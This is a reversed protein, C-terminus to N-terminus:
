WMMGLLNMTIRLNNSFFILFSISECTKLYVIKPNKKLISKQLKKTFNIKSIIFKKKQLKKCKIKGVLHCYRRLIWRRSQLRSMKCAIKNGTQNGAVM